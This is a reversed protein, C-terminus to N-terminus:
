VLHRHLGDGVDTVLMAKDPYRLLTKQYIHLALNCRCISDLSTDAQQNFGRGRITNLSMSINNYCTMSRLRQKRVILISYKPKDNDSSLRESRTHRLDNEGM